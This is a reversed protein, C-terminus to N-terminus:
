LRSRSPAGAPGSASARPGSPRPRLRARLANRLGRAADIGRGAARRLWERPTRRVARVQVLPRTATLVQSKYLSPDGLADFERRGAEVAGRLAYALMVIGLRQGAPADPKRGCQYFYVKNNWVLNYMAAVPEGRVTLWLLELAGVDLLQPLVAAHFAAFRPKRFAGRRGAAGWRENHLAALVRQGEELEPRTTARRLQAAGAAWEDFDRLARVIGYRKKKPLAQLYAEWTAPLTAYTAVDTQACEAALGAGALAATLLGPMPGEGDMVPLVM